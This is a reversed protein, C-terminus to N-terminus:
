FCPVQHSWFRYAFMGYRNRKAKMVCAPQLFTRYKITYWGPLITRNTGAKILADNETLGSLVQTYCVQIQKIKNAGMHEMFQFIKQRGDDGSFFMDLRERGNVYGVGDVRYALCGM